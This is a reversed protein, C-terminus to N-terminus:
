YALQKLVVGSLIWCPYLLYIWDHQGFPHIVWRQLKLVNYFYHKIM